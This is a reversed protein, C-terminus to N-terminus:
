AYLLGYDVSEENKPEWIPTDLDFDSSHGVGLLSHGVGLNSDGRFTNVQNNSMGQQNNTIRKGREDFAAVQAGILARSGKKIGRAAGRADLTAAQWMGDARQWLVPAPSICPVGTGIVAGRPTDQFRKALAIEAGGRIDAPDFAVTVRAGEWKYGEPWAFAYQHTWGYPSEATVAAMGARRLTTEARVPLAFARLHDPLPHGHTSKVNSEQSRVEDYAEKPIWNGYIKSEVREENLHRVSRQLGNMLEEVTPFLGRPDRRGERCATWHATEAAMEGRCRGVQGKPMFISLATWLRNFYGEVLKQNPRGKASIMEVGAADLFDLTNKAQWAGGEMVCQDPAYGSASWVRLLTSRVDFNSYADNARMVYGFGPCFDTACDIGLLLQFLALRVGYRDSCRDGGREWPVTVAVNVSADDWVQREGPRLRRIAGPPASYGIDLVPHGIDLNSASRTKVQANSMGQQNNSIGAHGDAMRLWGPVYIGNNQGDKPDRYRATARDGLRMAEKVSTPLAHRWAGGLIAERVEPSLPSGQDKAAIRACMSMSGKNRCRNSRLYLRALYDAEEPTVEVKRPRGTRPLEQLGEAGAEAHRDRWRRFTAVSVGHVACAKAEGVGKAIAGSVATYASEDIM